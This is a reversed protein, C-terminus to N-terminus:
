TSTSVQVPCLNSAPIHARACPTGFGLPLKGTLHAEREPLVGPPEPLLQGLPAEASARALEMLADHPTSALAVSCIFNFM